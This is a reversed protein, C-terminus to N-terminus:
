YFPTNKEIVVTQTETEQHFKQLHVESLLTRSFLNSKVGRANIQLKGFSGMFFFLRTIVCSRTVLYDNFSTKNDNIKHADCEQHLCM